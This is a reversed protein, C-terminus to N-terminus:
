PPAAKQDYRRKMKKQSSALSSGVLTCARQLHTRLRLVYEPISCSEGGRPHLFQEKLLKWPGRVVHGFVLETPSFGRSEQVAERAAFLVFPM